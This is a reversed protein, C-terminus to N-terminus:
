DVYEMVVLRVPVDRITTSYLSGGQWNYLMPHRVGASTVQAMIAVYRACESDARQRSFCKVFYKGSTTLLAVNFDEYGVRVVQHSRYRGPHFVEVVHVLLPRIPGEYGTRLQYRDLPPM